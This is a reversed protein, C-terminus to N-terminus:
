IKEKSYYVTREIEKQDGNKDFVVVKIENVGESLSFEQLFSGNSKSEVILDDLSSTILIKLHPLTKGAIELDKQFSLLNDDPTTLELTLTTPEKTVPGFKNLSSKSLSTPYQLYLIYYLGGLFLLSVILIILQSIIFTKTSLKKNM